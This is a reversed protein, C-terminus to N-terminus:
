IQFIRNRTAYETPSMGTKEKFARCFHYLSGFGCAEAVATVTDPTEVLMEKAKQIRRNLVYQRPTCNQRQRFLKRLYVESINMREALKTNSLGPDSLNEEIYSLVKRLPHYEKADEAVTEELLM